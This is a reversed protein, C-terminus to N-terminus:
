GNIKELIEKRVHEAIAQMFKPPVSNGILQYKTKGLM